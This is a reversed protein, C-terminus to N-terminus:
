STGLAGHLSSIYGVSWIAAGVSTAVALWLWRRVHALGYSAGSVVALYITLAWPNPNNTSVLLPTALSGVLGLGALAPGHLAAAFMCAVGTAGLAVFAFAPGIFEYLAYAAYIAGFAAVAGAATLVAPINASRFLM